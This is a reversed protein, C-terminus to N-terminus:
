RKQPRRINYKKCLNQYEASKESRIIGKNALEQFERAFELQNKTPISYIANRIAKVASTIKTTNTDKM